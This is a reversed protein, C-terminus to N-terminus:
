ALGELATTGDGFRAESAPVGFRELMAQWLNNLPTNRPTRLFRGPRITNGGRGVLLMPLDGHAHRNPDAIASGYAIMSHDLLTGDGEPISKLKATLYALQQMHYTNIAQLKALNAPRNQHHSITHHGENVGAMRYKQESGERGIMFTAIRTVDTQFALVLLDCMLRIHDTLDAPVGAPRSFDDPVTIPSLQTAATIRQEVERVGSLYQDLKRRDNGGLRRNLDRADELVADLVSVRLENRAATEPDQPQDAFFRNFIQRPNTETPLPSTPSRWSMTHEYVCSYGSDCNGAGRFREIAMELSPFRTRNGLRAAAVQDASIGAQFNAGSTKRPQAGTLFAGGARTHDGAGDGNANAKDCTLGGFVIMDQRHPEMPVLAPALTFDPGNGTPMWTAMNAGNPIYIFAMRRPVSASGTAPTTRAVDQAPLMADLFPLAVATGLGRLVTRRSIRSSKM